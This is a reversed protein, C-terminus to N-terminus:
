KTKLSDTAKTPKGMKRMVKIVASDYKVLQEATCLNRVTKFYYFTKLDIQKQKAAINDTLRDVNVSDNLPAGLLGFLSDKMKRMDDFMPKISQKQQDKLAKYQAIQSSNFGVEKELIESIGNREQNAPTPEPHKYWLFYALVAINTLVLVAIIVLLTRNKQISSM